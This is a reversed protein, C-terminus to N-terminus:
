AKKASPNNVEVRPQLVMTYVLSMVHNWTTGDESFVHIWALPFLSNESFGEYFFPYHAFTYVFHKRLRTGQLEM